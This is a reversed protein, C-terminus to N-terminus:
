GEAVRVARDPVLLRSPPGPDRRENSRVPIMRSAGTNLPTFRNGGRSVPRTPRPRRRGWAWPQRSPPHHATTRPASTKKRRRTPRHAPGTVRRGPTVFGPHRANIPIRSRPGALCRDLSGRVQHTNHRCECATGRRASAGAGRPSGGSTRFARLHSDQSSRERQDHARVANAVHHAGNAWAAARSLPVALQAPREQHAAATGGPDVRLAAHEVSGRPWRGGRGASRLGPTGPASREPGHRSGRCGTRGM